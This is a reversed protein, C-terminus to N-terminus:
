SFFLINEKRSVFLYFNVKLDTDKRKTVNERCQVSVQMKGKETTINVGKLGHICLRPEEEVSYILDDLPRFSHKHTLSLKYVPLILNKPLAM